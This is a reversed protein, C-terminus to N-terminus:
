AQDIIRFPPIVASAYHCAWTVTYVSQGDRTYSLDVNDMSICKRLIIRRRKHQGGPNFGPCWGDVILANYNLISADSYATPEFAGSVPATDNLAYALNALTPEALQTKITLRRKKLRRAPTELVQRVRLEDWEQEVTLDVGGLIGGLDTWIASDPADGVAGNVPELAGFAAIYLSAPGLVLSREPQPAKNIWISWSEGAGAGELDTPTTSAGQNVSEFDIGTASDSDSIQADITQSDAGAGTEGDSSAAAISQSDTGANTDGDSTTAAISETDIGAPVDGDSIPTNGQNVSETDTGTSTDSDSVNATISETDAGASTDGDSLTAAVSETDTGANVEADNTGQVSSETDTGTSTDSDSLTVALSETDAGAATDSDSLTVNLSQSETGAPAEADAPGVAVESDVGTSTDSDSVGITATDAGAGTDSDSTTVSLSETDAGAGTDSDSKATSGGSAPALAVLGAAWAQSVSITASAASVSGDATAIFYDATYADFDCTETFNTPPAHTTTSGYDQTNVSFALAATNVTTVSVTSIATGTGTASSFPVATLDLASDVGSFFQVSSASWKAGTWSFTFSAEGATKILYCQTQILGTAITGRLVAGSPATVTPFSAGSDWRTLWFVGVDGSVVTGPTTLTHTSVLADTGTNTQARYAPM